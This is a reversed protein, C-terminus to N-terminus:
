IKDCENSQIEVYAEKRKSLKNANTSNKDKSSIKISTYTINDFLCVFFSVFIEITSSM